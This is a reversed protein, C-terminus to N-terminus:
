NAQSTQKRYNGPSLGTIDKFAAYFNSQSSFGVEMSISLISADPEMTLLKKAADIRQTRIYQSFGLDYQSNILESLQHNSIKMEDALLALSLNENQYMKSSIMLQELQSICAEIDVHSLTTNSYGLRIVEDIESLVNQFIFLTGTVLVLSAGIGLTYFHYFYAPDIYSATFGIFLVLVAIVTFFGFFVFVLGFRKRVARLKYVISTLWFCYASGIFFALPVAVERPALFAVPLPLFHLLHKPTVKLDPFLISRSFFYFMAPLFLILLRYSVTSLPDTTDMYFSFHFFQALALGGLLGGCSCLTVWTKNVHQIFGVYAIFLTIAIIISFGIAFISVTTM